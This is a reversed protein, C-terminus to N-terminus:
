ALSWLPVKTTFTRRVKKKSNLVYLREAVENRPVNLLSALDKSSLPSAQLLSLIRKDIKGGKVCSSIICSTLSAGLIFSSIFIVINYYQMTPVFFQSANKNM